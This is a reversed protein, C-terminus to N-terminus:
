NLTWTETKEEAEKQCAESIGTVNRYFTRVNRPSDHTLVAFSSVSQKQRIENVYSLTAKEIAQMTSDIMRNPRGCSVGFVHSCMDMVAETQKRIFPKRHGGELLYENFYRVVAAWETRYTQETMM